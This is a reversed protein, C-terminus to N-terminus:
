ARLRENRPDWAPEAVVDAKRHVGFADVVLSTGVGAHEIDVLGLAISRELRHGYGGSTVMGVIAGDRLIPAGFMAECPDSDDLLMQVFATEVGADRQALLADRGVFEGKDLDVFRSLGGDLPTVDLDFDTKWARYAKELRLSGVAYQGIDALEFDKGAEVLADYLAGSQEVGVHLEWGLEGVYNVRLALVAIGAVTIQQATLWPFAANSVDADTLSALLDRSKPGAIVLTTSAETVDEITVGTAPLHADLWDRDHRRAAAAGMLLIDNEGLRTVSTETVIGGHPACFYALGVRGLSPLKSASLGDLWTAADDGTVRWRAFGSIETLGVHDRVSRCEHAVQEFWPARGYTAEGATDDGANFHAAREWGGRAGMVAGRAKLRETVPTVLRPRGAPKEEEAYAIAYEEAYTETAREVVYAQDAYADYRRPDLSWTDFSPKGDLIWEAIVRGSGGAQCIGFTFACAHYFNQKGVAPGVYPFGDPAYPIPGNIVRQVGVTGLLPMRNCAEEIYWELRELDDPWLQYAFDEPLKGDTWRPTAGKEYPGLILGHKEQRLYYSADPDRLLPIKADLAELEPVPETVLYQHELSVMPLFEGVMAAVEAGRYGAANVVIDAEIIGRDTTVKWGEGSPEVATVPCFRVVRAGRKRAASAMAQTLQSPDVDGDNPDWLVGVIDDTNLHPYFRDRAEEPTILEYGYDLANAMATVRKFELWREETRALRISGTKNYAFPYADDASLTTYLETSYHQVRLMARDGTYTPINGAAHWTSGSTLENLDLLVVDTEGRETLHYLVSAGVAGGGIVVVRARNPLTAGSGGATSNDESVDVGSIQTSVTLRKDAAEGITDGGVGNSGRM